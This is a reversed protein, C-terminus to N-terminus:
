GRRALFEEMTKLMLYTSTAGPDQHGLSREGLYSARGKRAIIGKTYEVGDEAAKVAKELAVLTGDGSALAAALTEVAPQLADVITKDGPKARGRQKIGELAAALGQNLDDGSLESKDGIAMGSRLFATGYLPGSAGGVKSVLTMGVTKLVDGADSDKVAPIKEAVARFGKAMNIGHDADGIASDLETLFTKNEEIVRGIALILEKLDSVVLGM